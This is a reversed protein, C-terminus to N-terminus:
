GKKTAPKLVLSPGPTITPTKAVQGLGYKSMDPPGDMGFYAWPSNPNALSKPKSEDPYIANVAGMYAQYRDEPIEGAALRSKLADTVQNYGGLKDYIGRIRTNEDGEKGEKVANVFMGTAYGGQDSEGGVLSGAAQLAGILQGSKEDPAEGKEMGKYAEYIKRGDEFKFGGDKGLDVGYLNFKDDLIGAGQLTKRIGDRGTQRQDKGGSINRTFPRLVESTGLTAAALGARGAWAEPGKTTRSGSFFDKAGKGVSLAAAVAALPIAVSGASSVGMSSALSPTATTTAATGTAATTGAATTGGLGLQGVIYNGAIGGLGQGLPQALGAVPNPEQAISQMPVGQPALDPRRRRMEAYDVM